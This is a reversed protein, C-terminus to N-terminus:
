LAHPGPWSHLDCGERATDHPARIDVNCSEVGSFHLGSMGENTQITFACLEPNWDANHPQGNCKSRVASTMCPWEAIHPSGEKM